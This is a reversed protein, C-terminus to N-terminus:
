FHASSCSICVKVVAFNKLEALIQVKYHIYIIVAKSISNENMELCVRVKQDVENLSEEIDTWNRSSVVWKVNPNASSNKSVLDLLLPLDHTCEDLGDIILYTSQLLPDKLIYIFIRSLAHWANSGEFLQKGAKDYEKQIHPVLAPQKDLNLYLLGRLVATANNVRPEAAQCFFSITTTDGDTFASLENIIGCLLMTKGKGPDGKIWLLRSEPDNQWQKFDDHSLIWRYSDKLLGGYLLRNCRLRNCRLRNCRLPNCLPPNCLSFSAFPLHM